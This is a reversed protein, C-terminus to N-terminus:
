HCTLIVIPSFFRQDVMLCRKRKPMSLVLAACFMQWESAVRDLGIIMKIKKERLVLDTNGTGVVCNVRGTVETSEDSRECPLNM